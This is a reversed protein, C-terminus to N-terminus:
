ISCVGRESPESCPLWPDNTEQRWTLLANKLSALTEAYSADSALNRLSFPDSEVDYLEWEPRHKYTTYNYIWSEQVSRNNMIEKWTTTVFVDELIGFSLEHMINHILRFSGRVIARTPYYAYLSHYNHSAFAIANADNARSIVADEMTRRVLPLLSRGTLSAPKKGARADKPYQLNTWDLVTPLIDLSSVIEDTRRTGQLSASALSSSPLAVIMPENMGQHTFLNTKGSPFPIGNDSFFIIMTTNEKGARKIEQLILGVGADMRNLATWQGAIDRRVADIDPLFPPVIIDKPDFHVPEWDPISGYKGGAGYNECFSGIDSEFGCRHCDGWGVYLLFPKEPEIDNLFERARYKMATINRTVDNYDTQCYSEVDEVQLDNIVAGAWCHEKDLGYTFNYNDIPGVHFKGLIGTKYGGANLINPLSTIDDYSEFNGPPQHLGYMGNQHTPLGSLIASRSPSCSSVSTHARDFVVAGPREALAPLHKAHTGNVGYTSFEFGGDDAIMIVVNKKILGKSENKAVAVHVLVFVIVILGRIM